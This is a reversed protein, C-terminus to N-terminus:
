VNKNLKEAIIFRLQKTLKDYNAYSCTTNKFFYSSIVTDGINPLSIRHINPYQEEFNIHSLTTSDMLGLAFNHNICTLKLDLSNSELFVNIHRSSRLLNRYTSDLPDFVMPYLLIDELQLTEKNCLPNDKHLVIDMVSNNLSYIKITNDTQKTTLYEKVSQDKAVSFAFQISENEMANIIEFVSNKQVISFEFEPYLEFVSLIGDLLEPTIHRDVGMTLHPQITSHQKIDQMDQYINLVQNVYKFFESGDVTLSIGKKGRSFITIGVEEELSQIIHSLRQQSINLEQAAATISSCHAIKQLYYLDVIRM